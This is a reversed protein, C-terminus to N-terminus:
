EFEGGGRTGQLTIMSDGLSSVTSIDGKQMWIKIAYIYWVEEHAKSLDDVINLPAKSNVTLVKNCHQCKDGSTAKTAKHCHPCEVKNLNEDAVLLSSGDGAFLNHYVRFHDTKNANDTIEYVYTTNDRSSSIQRYLSKDNNKIKTGLGNTEADAAAAAVDDEGEATKYKKQVRNQYLSNLESELADLKASYTGESTKYNDKLKTYDTATRIIFANIRENLKGSDFTAGSLDFFIYDNTIYDNIVGANYMLYINPISDFHQRYPTYTVYVDFADPSTTTLNGNKVYSLEYDVDYGGTGPTTIKVKIKRGVSVNAKRLIDATDTDSKLVKRTKKTAEPDISRPDVFDISTGSEDKNFIRSKNSDEWSDGLRTSVTESINQTVIADLAVDDYNSFTVPVIAVRDPDLNEMIGYTDSKKVEEVKVKYSYQEHERGLYTTGTITFDSPKAADPTTSVSESGEFYNAVLTSDKLDEIPANKVNEMLVQAYENRGQTTKASDTTKISTVLSSVLPVMLVLFVALAILVEVLTVGINKKQMM